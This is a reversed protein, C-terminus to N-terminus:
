GPTDITVKHFKTIIHKAINPWLVINVKATVKNSYVNHEVLESYYSQHNQRWESLEGKVWYYEASFQQEFSHKVHALLTKLSIPIPPSSLPHQM